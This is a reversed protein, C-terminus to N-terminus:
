RASDEGGVETALSRSDRFEMWRRRNLTVRIEAVQGHAREYKPFFAV